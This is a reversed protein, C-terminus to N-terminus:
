VKPAKTPAKTELLAVVGMMCGLDGIGEKSASTIPETAKQQPRLRWMQGKFGVGDLVGFGLHRGKICLNKCKNGKTTAKTEM